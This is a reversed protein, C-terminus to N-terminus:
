IKLEGNKLPRQLLQAVYIKWRANENKDVMEMAPKATTM